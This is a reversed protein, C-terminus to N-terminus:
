KGVLKGEFGLTVDDAARVGLLRLVAKGDDAISLEIHRVFFSRTASPYRVHVGYHEAKADQRPPLLTMRATKV